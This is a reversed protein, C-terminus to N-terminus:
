CHPHHNQSQFIERSWLNRGVDKEGNSVGPKTREGDDDEDDRRTGADALLSRENEQGESPM